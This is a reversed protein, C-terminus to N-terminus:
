KDDGFKIKQLEILREGVKKATDRPTPNNRYEAWAEAIFEEVNKNAYASLNDWMKAPYKESHLAKYLVQIEKDKSAGLLYDIHHGMEHSVISKVTDCGVPHFKMDVNRAWNELANKINQSSFLKTNLGISKVGKENKAVAGTLADFRPMLNKRMKSIIDEDSLGPYFKRIGDPNNYFNQRAIVSVAFKEQEQWSGVFDFVGLEPFLKRTRAIEAIVEKAADIDLEGFDAQKAIGSKVALENAEKITKVNSIDGSTNELASISESIDNVMVLTCRCRGHFPPLSQGSDLLEADSKDSPPKTQWPMAEKFKEPDTIDLVRDIVERTKAVSFHKGNMEGCIPCMREDGTALIEYEAIGAAEMGSIAGFSRARVLASSSVVDWYSYGEPAVGGLEQRLEKALADRGLGDDLAKQTLEAIKPSIRKGYHEGLWFCNHRSLVQIARKDALSLSGEAHFKKKAKSYAETIFKNIQGRVAKSNGFAPGLADLLSDEIVKVADQSINEPLLEFMDRLADNYSDRWNKILEAALKRELKLDTDVSKAIPLSTLIGYLRM